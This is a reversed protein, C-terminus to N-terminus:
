MITVLAFRRLNHLGFRPVLAKCFNLWGMLNEVSIM